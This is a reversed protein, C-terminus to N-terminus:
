FQHQFLHHSVNFNASINKPFRPRWFPNQVYGLLWVRPASGCRRIWHAANCINIYAEAMFPQTPPPWVLETDEVLLDFTLPCTEQFDLSQSLKFVPWHLITFSNSACPHRSPPQPSASPTGLIKYGLAGATQSLHRSWWFWFIILQQTINFFLLLSM